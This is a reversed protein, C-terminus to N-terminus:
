NIEFVYRHTTMFLIHIFRRKSTVANKAQARSTFLSKELQASVGTTEAM